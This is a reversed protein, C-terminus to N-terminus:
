APALLVLRKLILKISQCLAHESREATLLLKTKKYLINKQTGANLDTSAQVNENRQCM